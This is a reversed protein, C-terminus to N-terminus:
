PASPPAGALHPLLSEPTPLSEPARYSTLPKGDIRVAREAVSKCYGCEACSRHACDTAAIRRLFGKPFANNDITLRSLPEFAASLPGVVSTEVNASGLSRLAQLPGKVQVYSLLDM